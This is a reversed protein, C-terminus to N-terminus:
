DPRATLPIVASPDVSVAISEGVSPLNVTRASQKFTLVAGSAHTVEIRYSDGQFTRERVLGVITNQAALDALALGDPHLLIAEATGQVEFDGLATHVQGQEQAMVPIVNNLGLFRAVFPTEPRSYLAEPAGIQEIRGANM